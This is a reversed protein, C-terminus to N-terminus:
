VAQAYVTLSFDCVWRDDEVLTTSGTLKCGILTVANSDWAAAVRTPSALFASVIGVAERYAQDADGPLAPSSLRLSVPGFGTNAVGLQVGAADIAVFSEMPQTAGEAVCVALIAATAEDAGFAAVLAQEIALIM